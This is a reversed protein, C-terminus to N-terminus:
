EGVCGLAFYFMAFSMAEYALAEVTKVIGKLQERWPFVWLEETGALTKPGKHEHRAIKETYSQVNKSVCLQRYCTSNLFDM